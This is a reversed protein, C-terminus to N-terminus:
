KKGATLDTFKIKSQEELIEEQIRKQIVETAKDLSTFLDDPEVWERDDSNHVSGEIAVLYTDVIKEVDVKKKDDYVKKLENKIGLITTKTITRDYVMYVEDKIKM